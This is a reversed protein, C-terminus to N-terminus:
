PVDVYPNTNDTALQVVLPVYFFAMSSVGSEPPRVVGRYIRLSSILGGLLYTEPFMPGRGNDKQAIIRSLRQRCQARLIYAPDLAASANKDVDIFGQLLLKWDGTSKVQGDGAFLEEEPVPAELLSLYPGSINTGIATRDRFVKGNLDFPYFTGTNPDTTTRNMGELLETFRQLVVLELPLGAM